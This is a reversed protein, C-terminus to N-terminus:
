ASKWLSDVGYSKLTKDRTLLVMGEAKTQAVILRDFPDRHHFPLESLVILHKPTIAFIQVDSEVLKSAVLDAFSFDLQLKGLSMKIAIEWLSAISLYLENEGNELVAAVQEPLKPDDNLAWLFTHTDLLYTM